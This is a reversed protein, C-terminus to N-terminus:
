DHGRKKLLATAHARLLMSREYQGVLEALAEAESDSLGKRQRKLHLAELQAAAKKTLKNKAVRWLEADNMTDLQELEVSVSHPLGDHGPVANSLVELLEAELTRHSEEARQQLRTYLVDPLHLTLAQTSM